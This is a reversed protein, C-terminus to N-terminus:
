CGMEGGYRCLRFESNALTGNEDLGRSSIHEPIANCENIVLGDVPDVRKTAEGRNHYRMWMIVGSM